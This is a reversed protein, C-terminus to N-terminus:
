GKKKFVLTGFMNVDSGKGVVSCSLWRSSSISSGLLCLMNLESKKADLLKNSGTNNGDLLHRSSRIGGIHHSLADCMSTSWLCRMDSPIVYGKPLTTQSRVARTSFFTECKMRVCTHICTSKWLVGRIQKLCKPYIAMTYKVKNWNPKIKTRNSRKESSVEPWSSQRRVATNWELPRPGESRKTKTVENGHAWPSRVSQM